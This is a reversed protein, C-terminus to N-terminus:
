HRLEIEKPVRAVLSVGEEEVELGIEQAIQRCADDGREAGHFPNRAFRDAMEVGHHLDLAGFVGNEKL